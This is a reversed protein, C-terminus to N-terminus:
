PVARVWQTVKMRFRMAAATSGSTPTLVSRVIYTMRADNIWGRRRDVVLAGNVSGSMTLTARGDKSSPPRSLTGVISVFATEGNKSLSDLTFTAKLKGGGGTASLAPDIPALMVRSWSQGVAVPTNPLTAPMQSFLAHLEPSGDNDKGVLETAGDPAVRLRVRKGTLARRTEASVVLSDAGDSSAAVSDAWTLLITADRERREVFARSLVFLTTVVTATSDGASMRTTGSMEVRQDLRMRVTEGVPPGIRLSVAQSQAHAASTVLVAGVLSIAIRALM